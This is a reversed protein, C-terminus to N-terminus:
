KVLINIIGQLLIMWNQLDGVGGVVQTYGGDASIICGEYTQNSDGAIKLDCITGLSSGKVSWCARESGGWFRGLLPSNYRERKRSVEKTTDITM